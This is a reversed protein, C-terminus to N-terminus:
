NPPATAPSVKAVEWMPLLSQIVAVAVHAVNRNKILAAGKNWGPGESRVETHDASGPLFGAGAQTVRDYRPIIPPGRLSPVPQGITEQGM